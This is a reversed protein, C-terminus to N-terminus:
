TAAPAVPSRSQWLYTPRVSSMRVILSRGPSDSWIRSIRRRSTAGTAQVRHLHQQAVRPTLDLDVARDGHVRQQPAELQVGLRHEDDHAVLEDGVVHLEAVVGRDLDTGDDRASRLRAAASPAALRGPLSRHLAAHALARRDDVHATVVGGEALSASRRVVAVLLHAPRDVRVVIISGPSRTRTATDPPFSERASHSMRTRARSRPRRGRGRARCRRSSRRTRRTCARTRPSARAARQM